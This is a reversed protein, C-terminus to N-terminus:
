RRLKLCIKALTQWNDQNLRSPPISLAARGGWGRLGRYQKLAHLPFPVVIHIGVKVKRVYEAVAKDEGQVVLAGPHGIKCVGSVGLVYAQDRIFARKKSSLIHHFFLLTRRHTDLAPSAAAM